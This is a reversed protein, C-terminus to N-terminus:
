NEQHSYNKRQGSKSDNGTAQYTKSKHEQYHTSTKKQTYNQNNSNCIQKLKTATLIRFADQQKPELLKIAQETEM